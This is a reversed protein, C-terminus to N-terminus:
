ATSKFGHPFAKLIFECFPLQFHKWRFKVSYMCTGLNDLQIADAQRGKKEEHDGCESNILNLYRLYLLEKQM